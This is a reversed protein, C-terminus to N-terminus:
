DAPVVDEPNSGLSRRDVEADRSLGIQDPQFRQMRYIQRREGGETEDPNWFDWVIEGARTVEFVRGKTSETILVNGNPLYQSSGRVRSFFSEPPDGQYTWVIRGLPPVVEIVRSWGRIAGNDFILLNGNPLVSPHHPRDLIRRGWRWVVAERDPDVIAVLSLERLSLLLQGPRGLGVKRDLVEITNPHYVDSFVEYPSAKPEPRRLLRRMRAIRGRPVDDGFLPSLEIERVARGAEDLVLISQDRIPVPDRGRHLSGPKESLTYIHGTGDLDLDHHHGKRSIWRVQSDWGIRVLIPWALALFDGHGTPVIMCDAGDGAEPLTITHLVAGSMDLFRVHSSYVSCYANIGEFAREPDHLVVGARAPDPNSSVQEVYGLSRLREVLLEDDSGWESGTRFFLVLAITALVVIALIIGTWKM